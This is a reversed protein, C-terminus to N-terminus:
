LTARNDMGDVPCRMWSSFAEHGSAYGRESAYAERDEGNGRGQEQRQGAAAQEAPVLLVSRGGVATSPSSSFGVILIETM